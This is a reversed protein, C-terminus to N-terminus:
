CGQTKTLGGPNRICNYNAFWQELGKSESTCAYISGDSIHLPGKLLHVKAVLEELMSHSTNLWMNKSNSKPSCFNASDPAKPSFLVPESDELALCHQEMLRVWVGRIGDGVVWSPLPAEKM